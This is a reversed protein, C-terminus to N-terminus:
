GVFMKAVLETDLYATVEVVLGDAVRMVWCYTQQYPRGSRSSSEGRWQLIVHDGDCFVNVATAKIPGTLRDHIPLLAGDLFAQKGEFTGSLPTTGIVTWRVDDAVEKLFPDYDDGHHPRVRVMQSLRRHVECSAQRPASEVATLVAACNVPDSVLLFVRGRRRGTASGQSMRGLRPEM